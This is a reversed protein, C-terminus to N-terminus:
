LHQKLNLLLFSFFLFDFNCRTQAIAIGIEVVFFTYYTARYIAINIM